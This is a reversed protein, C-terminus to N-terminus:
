ANLLCGFFFFNRSSFPAVISAPFHIFLLLMVVSKINKNACNKKMAQKEGALRVVLADFLIFTTLFQCNRTMVDM